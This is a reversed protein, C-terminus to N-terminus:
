IVELHNEVAIDLDTLVLTTAHLLTKIALAVVVDRGVASQWLAAVLAVTIM